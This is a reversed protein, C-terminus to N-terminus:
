QSGENVKICVCFCGVIVKLMNLFWSVGCGDLLKNEICTRSEYMSYLDQAWNLIYLFGCFIKHNCLWQLWFIKPKRNSHGIKFLMVPPPLLPMTNIPPFCKQMLLLLFNPFLTLFTSFWTFKKMSLSRPYIRQSHFCVKAFLCEGLNAYVRPPIKSINLKSKLITYTFNNQWTNKWYKM